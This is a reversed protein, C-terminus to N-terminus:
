GANLWSLCRALEMDSNLYHPERHVPKGIESGLVEVYLDPHVEVDLERKGKEWELQIGGGSVPVVRPAPLSDIRVQSVLDIAFNIVDHAIPPSQYSDWDHQLAQFSAISKMADVQWESLNVVPYVRNGASGYRYGHRPLAQMAAVASSTIANM